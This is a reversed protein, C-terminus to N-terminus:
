EFGEEVIKSKSGGDRLYKDCIRWECEISVNTQVCLMYDM